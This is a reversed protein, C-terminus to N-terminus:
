KATKVTWILIKDHANTNAVTMGDPSFAFAKVWITDLRNVEAVIKRADTDYLKITGRYDAYALVKGDSRFALDPDIGKPDRFSALKKGTASDFLNLFRSDTTALTKGDPAFAAGKCPEKDDLPVSARLKGAALDWLKIDPEGTGMSAMTKGDPLFVMAQAVNDSLKEWEHECDLVTVKGTATDRVKIVKECRNGTALRKGDGSFAIKPDELYSEADVLTRKKRSEIDWLDLRSGDYSALSKGDPGFALSEWIRRGDAMGLTASKKGTAVDWLAISGDDSQSALIKSDPSFALALVEKAELTFRPEAEQASLSAPPIQLTFIAFAVILIRGAM